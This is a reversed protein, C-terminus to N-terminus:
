NRRLPAIDIVDGRVGGVRIPDGIRYFRGSVVNVWGALAGIVEQMAFALGATALGVVLGINGAFLLWLLALAIQRWCGAAYHAVKRLYYRNFIDDTRRAVLRGILVGVLAAVLIGILGSTVTRGEEWAATTVYSILFDDTWATVPDCVIHFRVPM